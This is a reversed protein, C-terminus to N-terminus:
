LTQFSSNLHIINGFNYWIENFNIILNAKYPKYNKLYIIYYVKLLLTLKKLNAFKACFNITKLLNCESNILVIIKPNLSEYFKLNTDNFDFQASIKFCSVLITFNKQNKIKKINFSLNFLINLYDYLM